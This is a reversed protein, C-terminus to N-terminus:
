KEMQFETTSNAAEAKLEKQSTLLVAANSLYQQAEIIKLIPKISWVAQKTWHQEEKPVEM